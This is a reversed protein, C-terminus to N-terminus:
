YYKKLPNFIDLASPLV